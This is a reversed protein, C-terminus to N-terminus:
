NQHQNFIEKVPSYKQHQKKLDGIMPHLYKETTQFSSHGMIEMLMNPPGNNAIFLTAFSHRFLHPHCKNIGVKKGHRKLAQQLSNVSIHEGYKAPFLYESEISSISPRSNSIYQLLAKKVLSHFPVIREKNGKGTVKVVSQGWNIDVMKIGVLESVRLGTDILLLLVCYFRNGSATSKDVADLLQKVEHPSLTNIIYKPTKPLPFKELPNHDIYDQNFLWGWFAKIARVHGAVSFPSLHKEDHIHKNNPWRQRKKLYLIYEKLETQGIGALPEAMETLNLFEFYKVLIQHYWTVTKNSRNLVELHIRYEALLDNVTIGLPNTKEIEMLKSMVCGWFLFPSVRPRAAM